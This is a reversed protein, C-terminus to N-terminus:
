RPIIGRSRLIRWQRNGNKRGLYELKAQGPIEIMSSPKKCIKINIKIPEKFDLFESYESIKKEAKKENKENYFLLDIQVPNIKFDNASNYNSDAIGAIGSISLSSFFSGSEMHRRIQRGAEKLVKKYHEESSFIANRNVPCTQKIQAFLKEYLAAQRLKKEMMSITNNIKKFRDIDAQVPMIRMIWYEKLWQREGEKRFSNQVLAKRLLDDTKLFKDPKRKRRRKKERSIKKRKKKEIFLNGQWSIYTEINDKGIDNFVLKDISGMGPSTFVKFVFERMKLLERGEMRLAYTFGFINGFDSSCASGAKVSASQEFKEDTIDFGNEMIDSKIKERWIDVQTKIGLNWGAQDLTPKLQRFNKQIQALKRAKMKSTYLRKELVRSENRISLFRDEAQTWNDFFLVITIFFLSGAIFTRTKNKWAQRIPFLSQLFSRKKNTDTQSLSITRILAATFVCFPASFFFEHLKLWGGYWRCALSGAMIILIYILVASFISLKRSSKKLFMAHAICIIVALPIFPDLLPLLLSFAGFVLIVPLFIIAIYIIVSKLFTKM